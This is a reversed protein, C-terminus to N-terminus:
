PRFKEMARKRLERAEALRENLKDLVIRMKINALKRKGSKQSEFNRSLLREIDAESLWAALRSDALLEKKIAEREQGEALIHHQSLFEQRWKEFEASAYIPTPGLLRKAEKFVEEHFKEADRLYNRAKYYSPSAAESEEKLYDEFTEVALKLTDFCTEIKIFLQNEEKRNMRRIVPCTIM